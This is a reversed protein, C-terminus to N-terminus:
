RATAPGAGNGPLAGRPSLPGAQRDLLRSRATRDARRGRRPFGKCSADEPTPVPAAFREDTRMWEGLRV